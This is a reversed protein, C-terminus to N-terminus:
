VFPASTDITGEELVKWGTPTIETVYALPTAADVPPLVADICLAAHLVRLKDIEEVDNIEVPLSSQALKVLIERPM